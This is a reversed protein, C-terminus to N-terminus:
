WQSKERRVLLYLQTKYRCTGNGDSSADVKVVAIEAITIQFPHRKLLADYSVGIKTVRIQIPRTEEISGHISRVKLIATLNYSM